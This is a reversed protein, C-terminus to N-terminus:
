SSDRVHSTKLLHQPQPNQQRRHPRALRLGARPQRSAPVRCAPRIGAWAHRLCGARPRCRCGPRRRRRGAPVGAHGPPAPAAIASHPLHRPAHAARAATAFRLHPRHEMRARGSARAPAPRPIPPTGSPLAHAARPRAQDRACRSAERAASRRDTRLVGASAPRAPWRVHPHQRAGPPRAPEGARHFGPGSPM